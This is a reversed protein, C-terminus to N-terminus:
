YRNKKKKGKEHYPKIKHGNFLTVLKTDGSSGDHRMINHCLPCKLTKDDKRVFKIGQLYHYNNKCTVINCTLEAKVKATGRKMIPHPLEGHDKQNLKEYYKCFPVNNVSSSAVDNPEVDMLDLKNAAANVSQTENKSVSSINKDVASDGKMSTSVSEEQQVESHGGNESQAHDDNLNEVDEPVNRMEDQEQKSSTSVNNDMNELFDNEDDTSIEEVIKGSRKELLRADEKQAEKEAEFDNLVDNITAKFLEKGWVRIYQKRSCSSNSSPPYKPTMDMYAIKDEKLNEVQSKELDGKKLQEM